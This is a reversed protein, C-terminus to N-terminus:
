GKRKKIPWVGGVVFLTGMITLLTPIAWLGAFGGPKISYQEGRGIYIEVEDGEDFSFLLKDVSASHRGAASRYTVDCEYFNFRASPSGDSRCRKVEATYRDYTQIVGISVIAQWAAFGLILSGISLLMGRFLIELSYLRTQRDVVLKRM